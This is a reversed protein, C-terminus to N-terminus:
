MKYEKRVLFVQSIAFSSVVGYPVYYGQAEPFPLLNNEHVVIKFGATISSCAYESQSGSLVMRLGIEFVFSNINFFHVLFNESNVMTPVQGTYGVKQVKVLTIHTVTVLRLITCGNFIM